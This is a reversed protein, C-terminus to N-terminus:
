FGRFPNEFGHYFPHFDHCPPDFRSLPSLSPQFLNLVKLFGFKLVIENISVGQLPFFQPQFKNWLKWGLIEDSLVQSHSPNQLNIKNSVSFFSDPFTALFSYFIREFGLSDSLFTLNTFLFSLHRSSLTFNELIIHFNGLTIHIKQFFNCLPKLFFLFFTLIVFNQLFFTFLEWSSHVIKLYSIKYRMLFNLAMTFMHLARAHFLAELYFLCALIMQLLLNVELLFCISKVYIKKGKVSTKESKWIKMDWFKEHKGRVFKQIM